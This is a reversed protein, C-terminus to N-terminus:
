TPHFCEWAEAYEHMRQLGKWITQIGPYEDRKRALFGGLRAVLIVMESLSIPGDPLGKKKHFRCYVAKWESESFIVLCSQNPYRLGISRIYMIRWAVIMYLTICKFLRDVRELQLREICCGSKLIKFFLEIEWRCLYWNLLTVAGQSESVPLSSILLWEVPEGGASVNIETALVATITLPQLGKGKRRAGGLKIRAFRIEQTVQRGQPNDRKPLEFEITAVAEQKRVVDWLGHKLGHEEQSTVRNYHSRILWHAGKTERIGQTQHFLEYIDGERDAMSVVLTGPSEQAAAEAIEFGKLWRMSEKEEIPRDRNLGKNGITERVWMTNSLAGLCLREPTIALVPHLLFGRHSETKLPGLGDIDTKSSYNIESTDQPLLVVKEKKIRELTAAKHSSFIKEPTM